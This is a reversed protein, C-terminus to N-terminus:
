KSATKILIDQLSTWASMDEMLKQWTKEDNPVTIERPEILLMWGSSLM